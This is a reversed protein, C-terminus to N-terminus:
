PDPDRIRIKKEKSTFLPFRSFECHVLVLSGIAIRVRLLFQYHYDPVTLNHNNVTEV